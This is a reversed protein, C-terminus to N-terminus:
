GAALAGWTKPGVIGDVVLPTGTADNRGSQFRMVAEKVEADFIGDTELVPDTVGYENLRAQLEVVAPGRSGERLTTTSPLSPKPAVPTTPVPLAPAAAAKKGFLLALLGVGAIPILLNM